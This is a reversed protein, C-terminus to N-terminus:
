LWPPATIRDQELVITTRTSGTLLWIHDASLLMMKMGYGPTEATSYGKELLARPLHEVAVGRGHDEVRVQVTNKGNTSLRSTGGGTHMVANM